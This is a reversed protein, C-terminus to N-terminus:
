STQLNRKYKYILGAAVALGVAGGTYSGIHIGWATVFATPDNLLPLIGELPKQKLLVSPELFAGVGFLVAFIIANILPILLLRFLKQYSLRRGKKDPNNAVLFVTGIVLGATWTAKLALTMVQLNFRDAASQIGKGVVYYERSISYAMFDHALGFVMALGTVSFLFVYEKVRQPNDPHKRYDIFGLLVFVFLGFVVRWVFSPDHM